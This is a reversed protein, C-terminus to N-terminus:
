PMRQLGVLVRIGPIKRLLVCSGVSLSLDAATILVALIMGEPLILRFLMFAAMRWFPDILMIQYSYKGLAELIRGIIRLRVTLLTLLYLLYMVCIGFIFDTLFSRDGIDRIFRLYGTVAAGTLSIAGCLVISLTMRRFKKSSFPSDATRGEPLFGPFSYGSLIMGLVFFPSYYLVNQLQLVDTLQLNQGTVVVNAAILAILVIWQLIKRDWLLPAILYLIMLCYCFWYLQGCVFADYLQTTLSEAHLYGTNVLNNMLLKLISFFFFPILIRFLKKRFFSRIDQKHCLFGAILIFLPVHINRLAITLCIAPLDTYSLDLLFRAHYFVVLVIAFAKLHDISKSHNMAGRKMMRKM